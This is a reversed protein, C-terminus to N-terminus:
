FDRDLFMGDFGDCDNGMLLDDILWRAEENAPREVGNSGNTYGRDYRLDEFTIPQGCVPCSWNNVRIANELFVALDFCQAHRCKISRGAFAIRQKSLPCVQTAFPDMGIVPAPEREEVIQRVMAGVNLSVAIQLFLPVDFGITCVAIRNEGNVMSSTVDVPLKVDHYQASNLAFTIRDVAGNSTLVVSQGSIMEFMFQFCIELSHPPVTFLVAKNSPSHAAAYHPMAMMNVASMSTPRTPM